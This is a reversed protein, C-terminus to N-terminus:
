QGITTFDVTMGDKWGGAYVFNQWTTTAVLGLGNTAGIGGPNEIGKKIGSVSGDGRAFLVVATHKSAFFNYPQPPTPPAPTPPPIRYLGYLTGCSGAGMWALSYTGGQEYDGLYDGYMLTNATGDLATLQELTLKQRCAGIGSWTDASVTANNVTITFGKDVVGNVAVYNTRGLTPTTATAFPIGCYYNGLIIAGNRTDANDSPCQYIPVTSQAWAWTTTPLGNLPSTPTWWNPASRDPLFYDSVSQAPNPQPGAPNIPPNQSILRYLNDQEIYPLLITSWGLFQIYSGNTYGGTPTYGLSGVPLINFASAHNHAGLAIQKLNNSCKMRAAAERIKQVAPLLLGILIAIIAIVVLLEILTFASRNRLRQFMVNERLFFSSYLRRLLRAAIQRGEKLRSRYVV